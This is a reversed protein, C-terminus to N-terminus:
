FLFYDVQIETMFLFVMVVTSVISVLAGSMTPETLDKPLKRYIDLSRLKGQVGGIMIIINIIFKVNIRKKKKKLVM